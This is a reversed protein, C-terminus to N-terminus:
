SNNRNKMEDIIIRRILLTVSPDDTNHKKCVSYAAWDEGGSMDTDTLKIVTAMYGPQGCLICPPKESEVTDMAALLKEARDM